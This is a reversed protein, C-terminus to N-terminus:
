WAYPVLPALVLVHLSGIAVAEDVASAPRETNGAFGDWHTPVLVTAGIRVAFQVAERVSLNGILGHEERFYDRGNIPLLAIDIAKNGVASLLEDTVITDGSHYLSRSPTRIIYGAFRALGTGDSGDSFGDALNLSHIAPVVEITLGGLDIHAGPQVGSIQELPVLDTVLEVLPAPLVVKLQPRREVLRALYGVDLHDIHEHTVLAVDVDWILETEPFQWLRKPHPSIFPDIIVKHGAAQLLFGAQGLWTLEDANRGSIADGDAASM